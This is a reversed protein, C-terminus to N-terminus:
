GLNRLNNIYDDVENKQVEPKATETNTNTNTSTQPLDEIGMNKGMEYNVEDKLQNFLQDSTKQNQNGMNMKDFNSSILNTTVSIKDYSEQFNEFNQVMAELPIANAEKSLIPTVNQTLHAMIENSNHNSKLTSAMSDLRASMQLYKMGKAADNQANQVFLRAGEENGIKMQKKAKKLNAKKEKEARKWEREFRKKSMKLQFVVDHMTMQKVPAPKSPEAGM